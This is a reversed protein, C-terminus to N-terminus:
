NINYEVGVQIELVKEWKFRTDTETLVAFAINTHALNQYVKEHLLKSNGETLISHQLM